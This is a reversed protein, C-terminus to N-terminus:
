WDSDDDGSFYGSLHAVVMRLTKRNFTAEFRGKCTLIEGGDVIAGKPTLYKDNCSSYGPVKQVFSELQWNNDGNFESDL